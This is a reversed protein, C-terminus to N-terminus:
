EDTVVAAEALSRVRIQKVAPGDLMSKMYEEPATRLCVLRQNAIENVLSVLNVGHITVEQAVFTLALREDDGAEYHCGFVFHHWPFVWIKGDCTEARLSKAGEDTSYFPNRQGTNNARKREIEEKLSMPSNRNPFDEPTPHSPESLINAAAHTSNGEMRPADM